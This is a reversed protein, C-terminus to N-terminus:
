GKRSSFMPSPTTITSDFPHENREYLEMVRKVYNKTETYPPVGRYKNVAGEGANYAAVALKVDGRFYALLWRLYAMGGKINQTADYANKVNFREATDPILQMLGMAAKNSTARTEFNSEVAIISFVLRPDLKYWGSLTEVLDLVWRKKATLTALHQDIKATRSAVQTATRDRYRGKEPLVQALICGPLETTTADVTDLMNQAERHGQESALAFLSGALGRNEEVGRGFAYLMGLRYLAEASGIRAAECYAIAAQYEGDISITNRELTFAKELIPKVAPSENALTAQEFDTFEAQATFSLVTLVLAALRTLSHLSSCPHKHILM